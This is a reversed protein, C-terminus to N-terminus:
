LSSEWKTLQCYSAVYIELRLSEIKYKLFMLDSSSYLSSCNSFTSSACDSRFLDRLSSKFLCSRTKLDVTSSRLLLFFLRIFIFFGLLHLFGSHLIIWHRLVSIFFAPDSSPSVRTRLVQTGGPNKDM